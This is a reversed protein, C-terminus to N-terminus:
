SKGGVAFWTRQSREGEFRAWGDRAGRALSSSAAREPIGVRSAISGRGQQGGKRLAAKVRRDIEDRGAKTHVDLTAM